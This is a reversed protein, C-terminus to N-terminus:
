LNIVRSTSALSKHMGTTVQILQNTSTTRALLSSSGHVAWTDWTRTTRMSYPRRPAITSPKPHLQHEHRPMELLQLPHACDVLHQATQCVDM